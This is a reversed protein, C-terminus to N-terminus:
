ENEEGPKIIRVSAKKNLSTDIMQLRYKACIALIALTDIQEGKELLKSIGEAVKNVKYFQAHTYYVRQSADGNVNEIIAGPAPRLM